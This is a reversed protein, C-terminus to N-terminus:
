RLNNVVSMRTQHFSQMLNSMLATWEEVRKQLMQVRALEVEDLEGGKKTGAATSSTTASSSGSVPLDLVNQLLQPGVSMAIPALAPMGLATAAAGLMPGSVQKLIGELKGGLLQDTLGLAPVVSKAVDFVSTGKKAAAAKQAEAKDLMAEIEKNANKKQVALFLLLKEQASLSSDALFAYDGTAKTQSATAYGKAPLKLKSTAPTARPAAARSAASAKGATATKAAATAKERARAVASAGAAAAAAASAALQATVDRQLLERAGSAGITTNESM